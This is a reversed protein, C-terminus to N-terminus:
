LGGGGACEALGVAGAFPAARVIGGAGVIGVKLKKLARHPM